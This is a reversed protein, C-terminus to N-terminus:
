AQGADGDITLNVNTWKAVTGRTGFMGVYFYDSDRVDFYYDTYTTEYTVGKFTITCYYIQGVRKLTATGTDGVGYYDNIEVGKVLEAASQRAFNVNMADGTGNTLLSATVSNSVIGADKTPLYCDDHLMLGFASQKNPAKATDSTYGNQAYITYNATITFNKSSSIKQFLFAYGESTAAIKGKYGGSYEIESKSDSSTAKGTYQGVLFEGETKESAIYGSKSATLDTDDGNVPTGGLDGFATGYWGESITKFALSNKYEYNTWDVATYSTYVYDSDVVLDNKETPAVIGGKIYDALDLNLKKLEETIHYIITKAGYINIHTKDVSQWNPETQSLGSTVAHFKKAEDYGKEKYLTSTYGTLDIVPVEYKTGLEKIAEPYDGDSTVHVNSGTYDDETSLRTIPTCLIPTAGADLAVKVYYNYLYYKFSTTDTEDKNAYTGRAEDETKEDNHGFGIFVYDGTGIEKKFTNYNDEAIFSKSSRGSLALDHVTIYNTDFYNSVVSATGYGVRQYFYKEDFECVTSDGVFFIDTQTLAAKTYTVENSYYSDKYKVSDTPVAKVEVKYNGATTANITYTTTTIPDLTTGNLRVVYSTANEVSPWTVVNKNLTIVPAELRTQVVTESGDGKSDGGTTDSPTDNTSDKSDDKTGCSTMALVSAAGVMFCILKKM